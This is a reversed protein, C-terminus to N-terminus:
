SPPERNKEMVVSNGAESFEVRSMFNRMLMVGRGSPTELNDPDTPDPIDAPDFGDGEDTIQIRLLDESLSSVVRVSKTPDLRNGHRIANILAEEVALHIGFVERQGWARGELEQLLEDLVVRSAGSESPIEHESRWIWSINSM